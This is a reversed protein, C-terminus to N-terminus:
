SIANLGRGARDQLRKLVFLRLASSLNGTRTADVAEVLANLSKGDAAAIEKLADWFEPELTISTAHGAILVSHKM